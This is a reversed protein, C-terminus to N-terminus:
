LDCWANETTDRTYYTLVGPINRTEGYVPCAGPIEGMVVAGCRSVMKVAAPNNAPTLGIVTDLIYEGADGMDRLMSSVAFRGLAVSAPLRGSSRINKTPLFAFHIRASTGTKDTLYVIGAPEGCFTLAWTYRDPMHVLYLFSELSCEPMDQFAARERGSNRLREHIHAWISPPVVDRYYRACQGM